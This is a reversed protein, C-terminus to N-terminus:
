PPTLRVYRYFRRPGPPFVDDTWQESPKTAVFPDRVIEWKMLDVSTEIQYVAGVEVAFGIRPSGDALIEFKDIDPVDPPVSIATSAGPPALPTSEFASAGEDDLLLVFVTVSSPDTRAPSNESYQHPLSFTQTGTASAPFNYTEFNDPSQPDGWDLWLTFTDLTGPDVITGTLTAMGGGDVGDIPDLSLVPRVNTVLFTESDSDSEGSNDRVTANITYRDRGTGTPNDDLYQHTLTFPQSGTASAGFSYTEMNDPSLTDGWDIDLMFTDATSPDLITGSLTVTGNEDIGFVTNLILEPAANVELSASAPDAIPLRASTLDSTTSEFMGSAASPPLQLTVQFTCSADPGLNGGSLTISSTGDLTSGAGCLNPAPLGVAVLGPIVADLNDAFALETVPDTTNLNTITYSLTVTGGPAAVGDFSKTFTVDRVKLDDSAPDGTVALGGVMGTVESTTNTFTGGGGPVAAPVQLPVSFVCTEGPALTGGTLTILGTGSVTGGCAALPLGTAVLGGLAADLNDTFSIDTISVSSSLNTLTFDLMVTGGPAVPDDTFEKTLSLPSGLVELSSTSPDIVVPSGGFTASVSGTASPYVGDSAGGPVLAPVDFVCSQGAMLSGGFYSLSTTGLLTGGCTDAVPPGTAALGSLVASLNHSFIISTADETPSVNELTYRITVPSGPLVPSELFSHTLKLGAVELDDSAPSGNTTLGLTTAAVDSTTNTFSGPLAALPVDLTVSFTCTEGPTLTGGGFTLFTDGASGSLMGNGPGCLDTLPLGTAALGPLVAALDDTFTIATADGPAFEDLSLTYELTVTGGPLVPDDTFEKTLRVAPVVTLDATAPAGTSTKGDVTATIPSTTNTVIGGPFGVPVRLDVTFTCSQDPNLSGGTVILTAPEFSGRPIYVLTSGPGCFGDAPLGTAETGPLFADLEDSFEIDTASSTTSTNTLTFELTVTDGAGVPDSLFRKELLPATDVFLTDSAPSGAIGPGDIDGTIASSINPFAGLAAGPPVQLTVSFTCSGGAPLSGGTLTLVSTGTLTSGAGCPDSPLPGVAELGSLVADLDDTFSINTAAFGRDYNTITFELTVMGGPLAPDDTFSMVAGLLGPATVEISGSAKGATVLDALLPDTTNGIVGVATAIVDVSITGTAGAAIAPFGGTGNSDLIIVGSGPIATVVAPLVSTGINNVVTNPPDAVMLGVPLNDTFDLNPVSSANASNDITFTLTSRSGLNVSGPSFSKSFGPLATDVTLDDTATGSNGASSTLDGSVNTHTGPTAATVEVSITCFANGGLRGGSFTITSGGDPASLTAEACDTFAQAPDAITVGAPLNNTFALATVPSSDPNTITFSLTSTSGPGITDPTFEASFM